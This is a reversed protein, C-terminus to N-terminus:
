FTINAGFMFSRIKPYYSSVDIGPTLGSLSVEPDIGSYNTIVFLNNGTAYLRISQISKVPKKFTYGLTANDLRLYSGNELFRSSNFNDYADKVSENFAAVPINYTTVTSPRFLEARTQNYIKNGITSRVFVSLDFNKYRFSNSWGLQLKPQANGLRYYDISNSLTTLDTVVKGTHDYFQTIGNADKGAYKFTFFQGIPLGPKLLQLWSVSQGAGTGSATNISDLIFISNTLSVIKNLNHSLNLSSNWSFNKNDVVAGNLTLEIGTNRMKGVNATAKTVVFTPTTYNWILDSTTKSYVELTGSLRNKLLAFDLGANVMTTKEWRLDPNPNQLVGIVSVPGNLGPGQETGFPGILQLPTLVDIGNSNGTVGYGVRLKLDNFIRQRNMFNENIVRWAASASPFYGWRNNIGFVSSGDHRISAQLLYKDAYNYNLRGYDSILYKERYSNPGWNYAYSAAPSGSGLYNYSLDDSIFNSNSATFGDGNVDKQYSYGILAKISHDGFKNEYNLFNEFIKSNNKYFTRTAQGGLVGIGMVGLYSTLYQKTDISTNKYTASLNYSFGAPLKLAATFSALLNNTVDKEFANNQLAVPNYYGSHDRNEFYTGDPNYVPVTPLYRLSQSLVTAQAPNTTANNVSNMVNFGLKLKNDFAQQELFLRGTVREVGSNKLIGEQKFYNLSAAYVTGQNGGSMSLNHNTSMATSRQVAKQWDTNAHLDDKPSLSQSNNALFQYVQDGSLMEIRKSVKDMSVYGDYALRAQGKKARKTTVMLIGNAGRNGYIATAAADKLVDITAIDGPAVSNIDAGPVGDIVVLPENAGDRLTSPGRLLISSGVNPDGSRTITLGAVKGQLMQLPDSYVGKNFDESSVSTISSSINKRSDTGYGVVVVENLKSSVSTLNFTFTLVNNGDYRIENNAAPVYGVSSVRIHYDGPNLNYFSFIGKDDAKVQKSFSSDKNAIHVTANPVIEGTENVLIGKISLKNQQAMGATAFGICFLLCLLKWKTYQKKDPTVHMAILKPETKPLLFGQEM